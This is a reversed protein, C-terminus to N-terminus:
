FFFQALELVDYMLDPRAMKAIRTLKEIESRLISLETETLIENPTRTRHHSTEITKIKNEAGNTSMSIGQFDDKEKKIIGIGMFLSDNEGYSDVESVEQIAQAIYDIFM